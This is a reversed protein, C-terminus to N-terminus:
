ILTITSAPSVHPLLVKYLRTLFCPSYSANWLLYSATSKNQFSRNTEEWGGGHKPTDLAPSFYGLTGLFARQEM